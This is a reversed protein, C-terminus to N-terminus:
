DTCNLPNKLETPVRPDNALTRLFAGSKAEDPQIMAAWHSSGMGMITSM